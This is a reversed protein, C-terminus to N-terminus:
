NEEVLSISKSLSFPRFDSVEREIKQYYYNRHVFSTRSYPEGPREDMKKTAGRDKTRRASPGSPRREKGNRRCGNEELGTQSRISNRLTFEDVGEVTM